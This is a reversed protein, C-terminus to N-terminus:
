SQHLFKRNENLYCDGGYRVVAKPTKILFNLSDFKAAIIINTAASRPM